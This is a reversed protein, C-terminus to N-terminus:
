SEARAKKKVDGATIQGGSGTGEVERLDVGLEEARQRATPTAKISEEGADSSQGPGAKEQERGEADATLAETEVEGNSGAAKSRTEPSSVSTGESASTSVGQDAETVTSSQRLAEAEAWLDEAEERAFAAVRALRAGIMSAFLGATWGARNLLEDARETAPRKSGQGEQDESM